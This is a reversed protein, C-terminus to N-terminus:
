SGDHAELWKRHGEVAMQILELNSTVYLCEEPESAGEPVLVEHILVLGPERKGALVEQFHKRSMMEQVLSGEGLWIDGENTGYPGRRPDNAEV